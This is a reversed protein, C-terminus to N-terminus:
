PQCTSLGLLQGPSEFARDQALAGPLDFNRQQSHRSLMAYVRAVTHPDSHLRIPLCLQGLDIMPVLQKRQAVALALLRAVADLDDLLGFQREFHAPLPQHAPIQMGDILSM